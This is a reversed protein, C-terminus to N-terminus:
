ALGAIRRNDVDRCCRCGVGRGGRGGGGGSQGGRAANRIDRSKVISLTAAAYAVRSCTSERPGRKGRGDASVLVVRAHAWRCGLSVDADIVM